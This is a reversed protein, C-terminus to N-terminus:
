QCSKASSPGCLNSLISFWSSTNKQTHKLQKSCFMYLHNSFSSGYSMEIVLFELLPWPYITSGHLRGLDASTWYDRRAESSRVTQRPLNLSVQMDNRAVCLHPACPTAGVDTIIRFNSHCFQINIDDDNNSCSTWQAATPQARKRLYHHLIDPEMPIELNDTAQGTWQTTERVQIWVYDM